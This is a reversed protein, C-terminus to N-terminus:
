PKGMCVRALNKAKRFVAVCKKRIMRRPFAAQAASANQCCPEITDPANQPFQV